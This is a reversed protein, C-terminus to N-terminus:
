VQGINNCSNTYWDPPKIYFPTSIPAPPGNTGTQVTSSSLSGISPSHTNNAAYPFPKQPGIPNACKRQIQLTYQSADQPIGLTKTYLGNAAMIDYSNYKATTTSCGTSGGKKYHNVYLYTKNTNNVTISQAAKADIYVQQSVNDSLNSNCYVPQVWYNPYQGNNIWKYKKELMGKTSLVSPKIYRYQKGRTDV